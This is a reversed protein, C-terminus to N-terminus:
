KRKPLTKPCTAIQPPPPPNGLEPVFACNGSAQDHGLFAGAPLNDWAADDLEPPCDVPVNDTWREGTNMDKPPPTNKPVVVHCHDDAALDIRRGQKDTPHLSEYAGAKAQEYKDQRVRKGPRTRLGGSAASSTASATPPSSTVATGSAQASSSEAASATQRLEPPNRTTEGSSCATTFVATFIFAPRLPQM